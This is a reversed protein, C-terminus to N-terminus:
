RLKKTCKLCVKTVWGVLIERKEMVTVGGGGGFFFFESRAGSTLGEAGWVEQPDISNESNDPDAGLSPDDAETGWPPAVSSM